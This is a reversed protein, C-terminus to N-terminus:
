EGSGETGSPPLPVAGSRRKGRRERQALPVPPIITQMTHVAV